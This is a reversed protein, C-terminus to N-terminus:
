SKAHTSELKINEHKCLSRGVSGERESWVVLLKQLRYKTAPEDTGATRVALLCHHAAAGAVHLRLVGQASHDLVTASSCRRSSLCCSLCSALCTSPGDHGHHPLLPQLAAVDRPPGSAHQRRPRTSFSSRGVDAM